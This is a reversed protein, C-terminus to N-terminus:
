TLLLGLLNHFYKLSCLRQFFHWVEIFPGTELEEDEVQKSFLVM